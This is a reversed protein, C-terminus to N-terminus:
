ASQIVLTHGTSEEGLLDMMQKFAAVSNDVNPAPQLMDRATGIIICGITDKPFNGPHILVAFRMKNPGTYSPNPYHFVGLGPNVLAYTHLGILKGEGIVHPELNYQGNPTPLHQLTYWITGKNPVITGMAVDPYPFDTRTLILNM